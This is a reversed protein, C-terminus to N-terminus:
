CNSFSTDRNHNSIIFIIIIITDITTSITCSVFSCRHPQAHPAMPSTLTPPPPASCTLTPLTLRSVFAAATRLQAASAAAAAATPGRQIKHHLRTNSLNEGRWRGSGSSFRRLHLAASRRPCPRSFHWCCCIRPCQPQYRDRPEGAAHLVACIIGAQGFRVDGGGRGERGM